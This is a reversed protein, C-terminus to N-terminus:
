DFEDHAYANALLIIGASIVGFMTRGLEDWYKANLDWAIFSGALYLVGCAALGILTAIIHKKMKSTKFNGYPM